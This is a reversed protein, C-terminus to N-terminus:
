DDKIREIEFIVPRLWDTCGAIALGPRKLGPMDGGSAIRLIEHRMDAWAWPCFGAPVTALEEFGELVFEQGDSFSECPGLGRYEDALYEEILDHNLTRKVVTIRCKPVGSPV